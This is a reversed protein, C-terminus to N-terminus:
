LLAVEVHPVRGDLGRFSEAGDEFHVAFLRAAFPTRRYDALAAALPDRAHLGVLGFAYGRGVADNYCRRLLAAFLRADDEDVAVFTVHFADLRGGPAPFRPLGLVPAGLNVLPRLVRLAGRYGAVRTQKFARQDWRALTGVVRSGRLAVYFDEVRFGRLRGGAAAFDDVTYAPAFQKRAGNRRLCAVIDPLLGPEGRVIAADSRVPPRRRGVNIAPSHVLGLDRYAPLGARGAALTALAVRNGAAIVTTYLDTRGDAHLDRFLRYGRAVALGGRYAPHLRLDGLYGLPRVAGNVFAPRVVRSGTGIVAGTAADRAVVVQAFDGQIAVAHFYSPEREFALRIRGDMPTQALLRRLEADDRETALAYTLRGM